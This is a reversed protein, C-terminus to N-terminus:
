PFSYLSSITDYNRFALITKREEKKDKKREREKKEKRGKRKFAFKRWGSPCFVDLHEKQDRSSSQLKEHSDGSELFTKKELNVSDSKRASAAVSEIGPVNEYTITWRRGIGRWRILLKSRINNPREM